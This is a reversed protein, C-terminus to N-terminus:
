LAGGSWRAGVLAPCTWADYGEGALSALAHESELDASLWLLASSVLWDLETRLVSEIGDLAAATEAHQTEVLAVYEPTTLAPMPSDLPDLEPAAAQEALPSWGRLSAGSYEFVRDLNPPRTWLPATPLPPAAALLAVLIWTVAATQTAIAAVTQTTM